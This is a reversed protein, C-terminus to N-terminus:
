NVAIRARALFKKYRGNNYASWARWGQIKYIRYAFGANVSPIKWSGSAMVKATM